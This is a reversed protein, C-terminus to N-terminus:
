WAMDEYCLNIKQLREVNSFFQTKKVDDPINLLFEMFEKLADSSAVKDIGEVVKALGESVKLLFNSLNETINKYEESKM